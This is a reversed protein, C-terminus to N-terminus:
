AQGQAAPSSHAEETGQAHQETSSVDTLQKHASFHLKRQEIGGAEGVKSPKRLNQLEEKPGGTLSSGLAHSSKIHKLVGDRGKHYLSRDLSNEM